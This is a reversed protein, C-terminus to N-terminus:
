SSVCVNGNCCGPCNSPGCAPGPGSGGASGGAAGGAAEGGATAGGAAGGASGGGATAGGATGGGATAGGAAGGATSGGSSGGASGGGAQGGATAGGAAGGGAAGGGMPVGGDAGCLSGLRLDVQNIANATVDGTAMAEVCTSRVGRMFQSFFTRTYRKFLASRTANWTAPTLFNPGCGANCIGSQPETADCHNAMVVNFRGKPELKSTFWAISNNTSNCMAPPAFAFLAPATVMPTAMAGLNMNDVPDLLMVARTMPRRSAALWAALGGASHGGVGVNMMDGQGAMIVANIAANLIDANLSHDVGFGGPLQPVVVAFGDAQLAEAFGRMNDKSLSFGHGLAVVPFPGAGAPLYRDVMFSRNQVAVAITTTTQASAVTAVLVLSLTLGPKM